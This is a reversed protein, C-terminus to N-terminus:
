IYTHLSYWTYHSNAPAEKWRLQWILAGLQPHELDKLSANHPQSIAQEVDVFVCCIITQAFVGIASTESTVHGCNFAKCKASGRGTHRQPPTHASPTQGNKASSFQTKYSQISPCISPTLSVMTRQGGPHHHRPVGTHSCMAHQLHALPMLLDIITM